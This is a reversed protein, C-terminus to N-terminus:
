RRRIMKAIFFGDMYKNPLITMYGEKDYIINDLKGYYIPEIQFDPRKKVFWKINEENEEKNLTCTAYILKGGEKVYKAANLMIKRQIKILSKLSEESKNWKIEPKKRIIGLGSCPVDILVRDGKEEYINMYNCADLSTCKINTIGLRNANEKILPLKNEHIDFAFIKGSNNIIEAIHCTKGGPASCLDLVTMNEQLEMSPAVMMASEDQVTILGDKFLPNNEINKGKNIIIAEPCIRGEEIDYGNELLKEWAEEYNTKLNNVRVTVKPVENLGQLINKTQEKGYQNNFLNVMWKPFSYEFCLKEINNSKKYYDINSNRLYNRLVGNVLRASKVARRKALEVAENVVAFEPIKDLYRIQYISIRLINLIDIDLKKLGSKIYYSLIIDITDKYKLTGYVIETTLAKDKNNMSSKNLEKGLVINSYSDECFVEKLIKVATKRASDM